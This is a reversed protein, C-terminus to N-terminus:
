KKPTTIERNNSVTVCKQELLWALRYLKDSGYKLITYCVNQVFDTLETPWLEEVYSWNLDNPKGSFSYTINFLCSINLKEKQNDLLWIHILCDDSVHISHVCRYIIM